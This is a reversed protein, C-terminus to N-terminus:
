KIKSLVNDCKQKFVPFNEETQKLYTKDDFSKSSNPMKWNCLDLLPQNQLIGSYKKKLKEINSDM